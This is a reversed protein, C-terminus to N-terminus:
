TVCALEQEIIDAIRSSGIGDLARLAEVSRWPRGAVIEDARAPGIHVIAALEDVDAANLDICGAVVTDGDSTADEPPPERFATVVLERGDTVVVVTGHLDTRLISAGTAALRALVEPSPHGYPNDSGVSVVAVQLRDALLDVLPATSSTDSGHHGVQYVDAVAREGWRQVLRAETGAEIDGTFLVAVEGYSVRLSLSADHVDDFRADEDPGLIDIRLPGISTRDGARPEAYAADSAELAAIAREFTLSTTVTGPMWVEDVEVAALVQDLQGIHDAHPHTIAVVDLHDIGLEQLATVVQSGGRDGTDILLTAEDHILLTADAQGVDLFHIELGPQIDATGPQQGHADDSLTEEHPMGDPEAAPTSAPPPDPDADSTAPEERHAGVDPRGGVSACGLLGTVLLALVLSAAVRRRGRVDGGVGPAVSAGPM